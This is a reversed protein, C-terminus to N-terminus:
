SCVSRLNGLDRRFRWQKGEVDFFVMLLEKVSRVERLPRGTSGMVIRIKTRCQSCAPRPATRIPAGEVTAVMGPEGLLRVVGPMTGDAHIKKLLQDEKFRRTLDRFSDKIITVHGDEAVHKFVTTRRGLPRDWSIIRCHQYVVDDVRVSWTPSETSTAADSVTITPDTLVHSAPPQYLSYIYSALPALDAWDYRPSTDSGAADLWTIQYYDPTAGLCYMGVLDPRAELSHSAYSTLQPEEASIARKVECPSLLEQYNLQRYTPCSPASRALKKRRTSPNTRRSSRPKSPLSPSKYDKVDGCVAVVEPM